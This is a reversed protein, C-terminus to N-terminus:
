KWHKGCIMKCNQYKGEQALIIIGFCTYTKKLKTSKQFFYNQKIM